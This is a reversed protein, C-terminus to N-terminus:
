EDETEEGDTILKQAEVDPMEIVNSPMRADLDQAPQFTYRVAELVAGRHADEGHRTTARVLAVAQAQTTAQLLAEPKVGEPLTKSGHKSYEASPGIMRNADHFRTEGSLLNRSRIIPYQGADDAYVMDGRQSLLKIVGYAGGVALMVVSAGVGYAMLINRNAMADAAQEVAWARAEAERVEAALKENQLAVKTAKAEILIHTEPLIAECGSLMVAGVLAPVILWHKM